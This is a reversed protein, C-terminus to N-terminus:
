PWTSAPWTSYALRHHDARGRDCQRALVPDSAWTPSSPQTRSAPFTAWTGTTRRSGTPTRRDTGPSPAPPSAGSAERVPPRTTGPTRAPTPPSERLGRSPATRSTPMPSAPEPWRISPGNAARRLQQAAPGPKGGRRHHDAHQRGGHGHHRRRPLPHDQGRHQLDPQQLHSSGSILTEVAANNFIVTSTGRNFTTLNWNGGVTINQAGTATLTAASAQTLHRGVTLANTGLSLTGAGTSAITLDNNVQLVSLTTGGTNLTLNYFPQGAGKTTINPNSALVITSTNATFNFSAASSNWASSITHTFSGADWTGQTMTFSNTVMFGGTSNITNAAAGKNLTLNYYTRGALSVPTAAGTLTVTSSAATFNAVTFSGTVSIAETGTATLTGSGDLNTGVTAGLGNLNLTGDVTCYGTTQIPFNLCTVSSGGAARFNYFLSDNDVNGTGTMVVLGAREEWNGAGNRFSGGLTIQYNNAASVDFDGGDIYLNGGIVVASGLTLTNAAAAPLTVSGQIGAPLTCTLTSNGAACTPLLTINASISGTGSLNINGRITLNRALTATLSGSGSITLVTITTSVDLTCTGANIIATDANGPFGTNPTWNANNTWTGTGGNWTYTTQAAAPVVALTLLWLLVTIPRIPRRM